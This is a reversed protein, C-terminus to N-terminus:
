TRQLCEVDSLNLSGSSSDMQRLTNRATCTTNRFRNFLTDNMIGNLFEPSLMDDAIETRIRKPSYKNFPCTSVICGVQYKISTALTPNM